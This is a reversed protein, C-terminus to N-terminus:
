IDWTLRTVQVNNPLQLHNVISGKGLLRSFVIITKLKPVISANFILKAKVMGPGTYVGRCDHVVTTVHSHVHGGTQQKEAAALIPQGARRQRYRWEDYSEKWLFTMDILIKNLM